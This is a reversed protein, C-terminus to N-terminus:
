TDTSPATPGPENNCGYNENNFSFKKVGIFSKILGHVVVLSEFTMDFALHNANVYIGRFNRRCFANKTKNICTFFRKM